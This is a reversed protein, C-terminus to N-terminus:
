NSRPSQVQANQLAAYRKHRESMGLHYTLRQKFEPDTADAFGYHCTPCSGRPRAGLSKRKKRM